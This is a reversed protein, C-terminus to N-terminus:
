IGSAYFADLMKGSGFYLRRSLVVGDVLWGVL